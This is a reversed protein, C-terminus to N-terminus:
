MAKFLHAYLRSVALKDKRGRLTLQMKGAEDRSVTEIANARVVTARHIQWFRKADLQ